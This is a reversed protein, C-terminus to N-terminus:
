VWSATDLGVPRSRDAREIWIRARMLPVNAATAVAEPDAASLQELTNIGAAHLRSAYTPGLGHIVTLESDEAQEETAEASATEDPEVWVAEEDPRELTTEHSPRNTDLEAAVEDPLVFQLDEYPIFGVVHKRKEDETLVVGTDIAKFNGCSVSLGSKTIAKM